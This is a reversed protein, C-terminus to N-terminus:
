HPAFRYKSLCILASQHLHDTVQIVAINPEQGIAAGAIEWISKNELQIAQAVADLEAAAKVFRYIM